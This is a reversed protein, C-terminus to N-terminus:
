VPYAGSMVSGGGVPKLVRDLLFFIIRKKKKSFNCYSKFWYHLKSEGPIEQFITNYDIKHSCAGNGVTPAHCRRVSIEVFWWDTFYNIVFSATQLVAGALGPRNFYMTYPILVVRCCIRVIYICKHNSFYPNFFCPIIIKSIKFCIRFRHCGLLGCITVYTLFRSVKKQNSECRFSSSKHPNKKVSHQGSRSM